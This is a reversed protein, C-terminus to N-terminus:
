HGPGTQTVQITQAGFQTIGLDSLNSGQQTWILRNGAGDQVATMGNNDGNQTLVARNDSGDQVLAMDNNNGAQTLIAGNHLAGDANQRSWAWNSTGDQTLYVVNQGSGDQALRAFNDTGSQKAV